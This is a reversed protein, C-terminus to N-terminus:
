GCVEDMVHHLFAVVADREAALNAVMAQVAAVKHWQERPVQLLQLALPSLLTKWETAVRSLEVLLSRRAAVIAASQQPRHM